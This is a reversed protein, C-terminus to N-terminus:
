TKKARTHEPLTGFGIRSARPARGPQIKLTKQYKATREAIIKREKEVNCVTEYGIPDTALVSLDENRPEGNLEATTTGMPITLGLVSSTLQNAALAQVQRDLVDQEQEGLLQIAAAHSDLHKAM